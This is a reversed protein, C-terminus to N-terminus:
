GRLQAIKRDIEERRKAGLPDHWFSRAAMFLERAETSRGQSALLEGLWERTLSRIWDWVVYGWLLVGDTREMEELTDRYRREADGDRGEIVAVLASALLRHVRTTHDRVLPLMAQEHERAREIEGLATYATVLNYHAALALGPWAAPDVLSLSEEAHDRASEFRGNQYEGWSAQWLISALAPTNGTERAATIAEAVYPVMAEADRVAAYGQALFMAAQAVGVYGGGAAAHAYAEEGLARARTFEGENQARQAMAVLVFALLQKMDHQRAIALTEEMLGWNRVHDKPDIMARTWWLSWGVAEPDGTARAVALSEAALAPGGDGAHHAAFGLLMALGTTPGLGRVQDLARFLDTQDLDGHKPPHRVVAHWAVDNKREALPIALATAIRAGRDYFRTAALGARMAWQRTGLGILAGYARRGIRERDSDRLDAALLFAQELHYAVLEALDEGRDAQRRELWDAALEHLRQRDHKSISGYVADRILAHRFHYSPGAPSPAEDTAVLFDSGLAERLAEPPPPADPALARVGHLPFYRGLVSGHQLLRRTSASLRDLRSTIVGRLTDPVDTPATPSGADWGDGSRRLHGSAILGRLIEELYLPNGGSRDVIDAILGDPLRAVRLLELVLRQSATADLQRLRITSTHAGHTGWGPRTEALEPRALCCVLIMGDSRDALDEILELLAPTAWHVDELILLSPREYAARGIFKRFAWRLETALDEASVGPLVTGADAFGALVSLQAVLAPASEDAWLAMTRTRLKETATIRDDDPGISAEDTIVSRIAHYEIAEGYPLCRGTRVVAATRKAFERLLRSKGVGADGLITVLHPRRERVARTMLDGLLVLEDDRGLMPAHLGPIGRSPAGPETTLIGQVRWADLRGTGKGEIQVPDGYRIASVTLHRTLPGVLIGGPEAAPYLRAAVNVPLGTVLFDRGDGGGAAVEGTNIGIRFRVPFGVSALLEDALKHLALAARVAREPDDDHGRPVGFVAMVADGIFKEVTGGHARLVESARDFVDALGRRLWEPDHEAALETSGVIDAFLITVLRREEAM